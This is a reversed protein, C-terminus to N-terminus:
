KKDSNRNVTIMPQIYSSLLTLAVFFMPLMDATITTHFIVSLGSAIYSGAIWKLGTGVVWGVAIAMIPNLLLLFILTLLGLVGAGTGIALGELINM